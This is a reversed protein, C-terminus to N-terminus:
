RLGNDEFDRLLDIYFGLHIIRLSPQLLSGVQLCNARSVKVGRLTGCVSGPAEKSAEVQPVQYKLPGEPGYCLRYGWSVRRGPAELGELRAASAQAGARPDGRKSRRLALLVARSGM